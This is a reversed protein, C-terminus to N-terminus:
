RGPFSPKRKELFARTGERMDETAFGLGFLASEMREAESFSTEAGSLVAELARALATPSKTNLTAAYAAAADRLTAAAVVRSVLGIRLAEAADIMEGRLILDLASGRGVIRPLRQTGGAGPILGLGVEPQGFRATESAIRVHCAMALELGGGLAYGNVAAVVPKRSRELRGLVEQLFRSFEQAEEPSMVSMEAIDAGAVFAKEGAGTVVLIGVGPDAAAARVAGDIEKMTERNLANLKDPRHVTLWATRDRVEYLVNPPGDPTMPEGEPHRREPAAADSATAPM